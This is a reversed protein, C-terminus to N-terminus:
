EGGWGQRGGGGAVGCSGTGMTKSNKLHIDPFLSIPQSNQYSSVSVDAWDWSPLPPPHISAHMMRLCGKYVVRHRWSGTNILDELPQGFSSILMGNAYFSRCKTINRKDFLYNNKKKGKKSKLSCLCAFSAVNPCFCSLSIGSVILLLPDKM